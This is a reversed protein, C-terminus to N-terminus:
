AEKLAQILLDKKRTALPVTSGDKLFITGGDRKDLHDFFVLNILHSQHCRFFGAKELLEAFEKMTKSILLKRGDSLFFRTYNDESQCRIIESLQVLYVNDSDSLVLQKLRETSQSSIAESVQIEQIPRQHKAKKVAETLDDPDVPKLLYDIAAVRFARIAYGDHGTVFIVRFTREKVLNLLDFGTGDNMEIDLFVLDPKYKKVCELGSKVGDAEAIVEVDPVFEELLMKLNERVHSQDDILIAKM